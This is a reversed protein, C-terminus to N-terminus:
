LAMFYAQKSEFDPTLFWHGVYVHHSTFAPIFTGVHPSTYVIGAPEQALRAMAKMVSAPIHYSLARSAAQWTMTLASQFLCILLLVPAFKQSLPLKPLHRLLEELATAAVICLPIHLHFAFHFGNLLPSSHLFIVSLTWAGVEVCAPTSTRIW